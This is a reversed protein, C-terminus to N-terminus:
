YLKGSFLKEWIADKALRSQRYFQTLSRVTFLRRLLYRPRLYFKKFFLSLYYELAEKSLEKTSLSPAPNQERGLLFAKWYGQAIYSHNAAWDFLECGVILITRSFVAFEPDIELALSLTKELTRSTEQPSGMMFYAFIEIGAEKTIKACERSQSVTIEKKLIKLIEDDGSEMGYRIRYCGANKMEGLLSRDVMDVRARCEWIVGLQRRRIEACLRYIWNKNLIFNDDFFMIEKIGYQSNLLEMEEVVNEPSRVRWKKGMRNKRDCFTCNFPCGRSAIMTAFRRKRAFIDYYRGIPLLDWAPFPVNDLNEIWPRPENMIVQGDKEFILGKIKELKGGKELAGLLEVTTIGGEGMVAFDFEGYQLSLRPFSSVNPGGIVTKINPNIRKIRRAINDAQQFTWTMVYFGVVDPEFIRIAQDIREDSNPLADRDIIMVDHRNNRLTAAVYGLGLPPYIGRQKEISRAYHGIEEKHLSPNIM